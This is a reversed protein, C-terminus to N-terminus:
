SVRGYVVNGSWIERYKVSGGSSGSDYLMGGGAYIGVHNARGGSLFFVLDGARAESSSIRTTANLQQNATRPLSYGLLNFVYGTYGSCDFGAPTTGGYRYPTGLYRAAVALVSSGRASGAPETTVSSDLEARDSSRSVRAESRTVKPKPALKAKVAGAEHGEEFDVKADDPATIARDAAQARVDQAGRDRTPAADLTLTSATPASDLKAAANAPLGMTAVLGSSMAIVVGGRGLTGVHDSMTTTLASLPTVARQSARHRRQERESM